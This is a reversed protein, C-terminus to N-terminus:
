QKTTVNTGRVSQLGPFMEVARKELYTAIEYKEFITFVTSASLYALPEVTQLDIGLEDNLEYEQLPKCVPIYIALEIDHRELGRRLSYYNLVQCIRSEAVEGAGTDTEIIRESITCVPRLESGRTYENTQISATKENELAAEYVPKVWGKVRFAGLLYYDEPLVVFGTGDPLNSVHLSESFQKKAFWTRPMVKVCRRWADVYSGEIHRDIQTTDAGLFNNGAADYMGSENMILMVRSIFESKTPM